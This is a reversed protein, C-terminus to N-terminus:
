LLGILVAPLGGAVLENVAVPAAGAGAGLM